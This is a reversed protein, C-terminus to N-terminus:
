PRPGSGPGTRWRSRGRALEKGDATRSLRHHLESEPEAVALQSILQDRYHGEGRFEVELSEVRQAVAVEAPVAELLASIAAVHNLHGNLDLDSRRVTM